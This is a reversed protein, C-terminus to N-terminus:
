TLDEDDSIGVASLRFAAKGFSRDSGLLEIALPSKVVPPSNLSITTSASGEGPQGAITLKVSVKVAAANPLAERPFILQVQANRTASAVTATAPVVLPQPGPPDLSWAISVQKDASSLLKTDQKELKLSVSLPQVASHRASCTGGCDRTLTGTPIPVSPDRPRIQRSM